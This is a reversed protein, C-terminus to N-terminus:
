RGGGEKRDSQLYSQKGDRRISNGHWYNTNKKEKQSTTSEGRPHRKSRQITLSSATRMKEEKYEDERNRQTVDKLNQIKRRQEREHQLKTRRKGGLWPTV